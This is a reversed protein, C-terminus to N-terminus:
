ESIDKYLELKTAYDLFLESARSRIVDKKAILAIKGKGEPEELPIAKISPNTFKKYTLLPVITFGANAAVMEFIFHWHSSSLITNVKIDEKQLLKDVRRLSHQSDNFAIYDVGNIDSYHISEFKSIPNDNSAVVVLDNRTLEHLDFTSNDNDEESIDVFALDISGRFVKEKLIFSSNEFITFDILPHGKRFSPFIHSFLEIGAESCLGIKIHGRDIAAKNNTIELFDNYEKLIHIAKEYFVQGADTLWQKKQYTYFFTFGLEEELRKVAKSLAPQSVFLKQAAVSYSGCEAVQVFYYLQHIDM